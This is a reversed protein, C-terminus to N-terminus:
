LVAICSFVNKDLRASCSCIVTSCFSMLAWKFVAFAAPHCKFVCSTAHIWRWIGFGGRRLDLHKTVRGIQLCLISIPFLAPTIPYGWAWVVLSVLPASYAGGAGGAPGPCLSGSM